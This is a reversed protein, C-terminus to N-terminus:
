QGGERYLYVPSAANPAAPDSQEQMVAWILMTARNLSQMITARTSTPPPITMATRVTALEQEAAAVMEIQSMPQNDNPSM